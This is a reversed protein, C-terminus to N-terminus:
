HYNLSDEQFVDVYICNLYMSASDDLKQTRVLLRLISRFGYQLIYFITFPQLWIKKDMFYKVKNSM